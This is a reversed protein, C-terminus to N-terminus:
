FNPKSNVVDAATIGGIQIIINKLAIAALSVLGAIFSWLMTHYAKEVLKPDGSSVVYRFAGFALMILSMSFSAGLAVNLVIVGLSGISDIRNIKDDAPVATILDRLSQFMSVKFAPGAFGPRCM